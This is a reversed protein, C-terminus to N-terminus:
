FMTGDEVYIGLPLSPNESVADPSYAAEIRLMAAQGWLVYLGAGVGYKLGVGTGDLPSRFSYDSWVRGTDFFVDNGLTFKQGLVSFKLLMERLEINGVLKIPGLYRGVPVGRVGASGGPMEKMDFPGAQFLDYFPVNGAQFNAIFRGALVVRDGLPVFGRLIAGAEVYRM